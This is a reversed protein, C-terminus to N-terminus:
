IQSDFSIWSNFSSDYGSWKVFIEKKGKKIRSRIIKEIRYIEQASKQLEPEYFTGHIAENNMDQIKYTPPNTSQAETIIFLEKTWNTEYGKAFTGKKKSIRVKDGVQFKPETKEPMNKSVLGGPTVDLNLRPGFFLVQADPVINGVEDKVVAELQISDGVKLTLTSPEIELTAPTQALLETSTLVALFVVLLGTSLKKM